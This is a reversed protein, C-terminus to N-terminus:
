FFRRAARRPRALNARSQGRFLHYRACSEAAGRLHISAGRSQLPGRSPFPAFSIRPPSFGGTPCLRRLAPNAPNSSAGAFHRSGPEAFDRNARRRAPSPFPGAACFEAPFVGSLRPGIREAGTGFVPLKVGHEPSHSPGHRARMCKPIEGIAECFPRVFRGEAPQRFSADCRLSESRPPTRWFLGVSQRWLSEQGVV